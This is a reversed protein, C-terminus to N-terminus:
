QTKNLRMGLDDLASLRPTLSVFWSGKELIAWRAKLASFWETLTLQPFDHNFPFRQSKVCWLRNVPRPSCYLNHPPFFISAESPATSFRIFRRCHHWKLWRQNPKLVVLKFIPNNLNASITLVCICVCLPLFTFSCFALKLSWSITWFGLTWFAFLCFLLCLFTWLFFLLSFDFLPSWGSAMIQHSFTFLARKLWTFLCYKKPNWQSFDRSCHKISRWRCNTKRKM